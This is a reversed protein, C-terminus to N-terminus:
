QRKRIKGNKTTFHREWRPTRWANRFYYTTYWITESVKNGLGSRSFIDGLKSGAVLPYKGSQIVKDTYSLAEDWHQEGMIFLVRALLAQAAPKFLRDQFDEPMDSSYETKLLTEAQKLDAIIQEYVVRNVSRAKYDTASKSMRTRMIIGPADPASQYPPAFILSNMFHTYARLFYCEGRMHGMLPKYPDDEFEADPNDEWFNIVRNATQLVVFSGDVGFMLPQKNNSQNDRDYVEEFDLRNTSPHETVVDSLITRNINFDIVGYEGPSKLSFYASRTFDDFVQYNDFNTTVQNINVEADGLWKNADCATLAVL